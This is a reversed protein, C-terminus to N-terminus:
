VTAAKDVVFCNNETEQITVEIRYTIGRDPYQRAILAVVRDFVYHAVNEVSPGKGAMVVVGEPEFLAPDTLTADSEVVLMKHDLDRMVQKIHGFDLSMDLADRPFVETSIAVTGRWTHGHVFRCKGPYGLQRHGTHFKAHVIIKEM